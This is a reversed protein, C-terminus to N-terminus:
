QKRRYHIRWNVEWTKGEDFSREWRWDLEDQTINYWVMRQLADEGEIVTERSLAMEGDHYSGTFDLYGGQNDVWTQKWKGAAQNYSSVSWGQLKIAPTGDFQELIVCGDLVPRITNSGKGTEGWSLDWEGVWFDFQRAEPTSCPKPANEDQSAAPAALGLLLAVVLTGLIRDSM